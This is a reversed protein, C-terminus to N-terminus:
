LEVLGLAFYVHCDWAEVGCGYDVGVLPLVVSRVFVRFGAGVGNRWQNFKPDTQGLLYHRGITGEDRTFTTFASDWFALGRFAFSGIKFFPVSYEMNFAVKTDGRFQRNTYGRLGPAGGSTFEQQFPLQNGIGASLKWILNHEKFYKIAYQLRGSAIWWDVDSGLDPLAREYSLLLLSGTTIGYWNARKDRILRFESSVDWGDDQPAGPSGQSEQKTKLAWHPDRYFVYAGRLRTDFAMGRWLNAGLLLGANLYYMTSIRDPEPQDLFEEPSSFETVRERRHFTDIRWYFASGQISPNLYAALFLSDATAVQGYLLLKKNEGNLNSEAFGLGAGVNGPQNYFTPGIVWSHKDKATIILKVGGPAPATEVRVEKFLGSTVLDTKIREGLSPSMRDGTEVDAIQLVTDDNTKTNGEVEIKVIKEAEEARAPLSSLLFAVIALVVADNGRWRSLAARRPLDRRRGFRAVFAHQLVGLRSRPRVARSARRIRECCAPFHRLLALLALKIKM